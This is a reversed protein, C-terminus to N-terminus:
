TEEGDKLGQMSAPNGVQRGRAAKARIAEWVKRTLRMIGPVLWSAPLWNELALIHLRSTRALVMQAAHTELTFRGATPDDITHDLLPIYDQRFKM